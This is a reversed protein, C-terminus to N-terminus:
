RWDVHMKKGASCHVHRDSARGASEERLSTVGDRIEKGSLRSSKTRGRKQNRWLFSRRVGSCCSESRTRNECLHIKGGRRTQAPVGNQEPRNRKAGPGKGARLVIVEASGGREGKGRTLGNRRSWCKGAPWPHIKTWTKRRKLPGRGAV